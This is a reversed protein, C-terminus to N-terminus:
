SLLISFSSSSQIRNVSHIGLVRYDKWKPPHHPLSHHQSLSRFNTSLRPFKCARCSFLLCPCFFSASRSAALFFTHCQAVYWSKMKKSTLMCSAFKAHVIPTLIVSWTHTHPAHMCTSYTHECCLSHGSWLIVLATYLFFKSLPKVIHKQLYMCNKPPPDRVLLIQYSDVEQFNVKKNRKVFM